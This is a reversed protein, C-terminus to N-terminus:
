EDPSLADYDMGYVHEVVHIALLILTQMMGRQLKARALLVPSQRFLDTSPCNTIDPSPLKSEERRRDEIGFIDWAVHAGNGVFSIAGTAAMKGGILRLIERSSSLRLLEGCKGPCFFLCIGVIAAVASMAVAGKVWPQSSVHNALSRSGKAVDPFILNM